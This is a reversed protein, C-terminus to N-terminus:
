NKKEGLVVPFTKRVGGRDVVLDIADGASRQSLVDLLQRTTAIVTDDIGVVRDGARFGAAEAPGDDYVRRILPEPKSLNVGLRAPRKPADDGAASETPDTESRDAKTSDTAPPEPPDADDANSDEATSPDSMPLDDSTSAGGADDSEDVDAAIARDASSEDSNSAIAAAPESEGNSAGAGGSSSDTPANASLDSAADGDPQNDTTSAPALDEGADADGVPQGSREAIPSPLDGAVSTIEDPTALTEESSESPSDPVDSSGTVGGAVNEPGNNNAGLDDDNNGPGGDSQGRSEDNNGLPGENLDSGESTGGLNEGSTLSRDTQDGMGDVNETEGNTAEGIEFAEEPDDPGNDTNPNAEPADGSQAMLERPEVEAIVGDAGPEAVGTERDGDLAANGTGHVAANGTGHVAADSGGDSLAAIADEVVSETASSGAELSEAAAAILGGGTNGDPSGTDGDPSATDGDPSTTSAVRSRPCGEISGVLVLAITLLALSITVRQRDLM